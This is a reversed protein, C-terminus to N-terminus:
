RQELSTDLDFLAALGQESQFMNTHDHGVGPVLQLSRGFPVTPAQALTFSLLQTRPASPVPGNAFRM